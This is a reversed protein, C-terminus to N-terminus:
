HPVKVGTAKVTGKLIMPGVPVNNCQNKSWWYGRMLAMGTPWNFAVDIPQASMPPRSQNGVQLGLIYPGNNADHFSLYSSGPMIPLTDEGNVVARQVGDVPNEVVLGSATGTVTMKYIVLGTEKTEYIKKINNWVTTTDCRPTLKIVPRTFTEVVTPTSRPGIQAPAAVASGLLIVGGLVALPSLKSIPLM